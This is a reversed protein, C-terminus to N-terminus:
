LNPITRLLLTTLVGTAMAEMAPHTSARIHEGQLRMDASGEDPTIGDIFLGHLWGTLHCFPLFSNRQSSGNSSSDPGPGSSQLSHHPSRADVEPSAAGSDKPPQWTNPSLTM